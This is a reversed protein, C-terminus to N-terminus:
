GRGRRAARGGPAPDARPGGRLRGPRGGRGGGRAAPPGARGGRGAALDGRGAAGGPRVPLRIGRGPNRGLQGDGVAPPAPATGGISIGRATPQRLLGFTADISSATTTPAPGFPRGAATSSARRPKETASNSAFPVTPPPARVSSSVRGPKRWSGQEAACGRPM